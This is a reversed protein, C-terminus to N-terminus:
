MTCKYSEFRAYVPVDNPPLTASSETDAHQTKCSPLCAYMGHMAGTFRKGKKLGEDCLYYVNDLSCLQTFGEPSVNDDSFSYSFSRKLYDTDVRFIISSHSKDTLKICAAKTTINDIHECVNLLLHGSNNVVNFTLYTNEDYYCTIGAEGDDFMLVESDLRM